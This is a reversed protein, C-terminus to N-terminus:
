GQTQPDSTGGCGQKRERPAPHNKVWKKQSTSLFRKGSHLFFKPCWPGGPPGSPSAAACQAAGPLFPGPSPLLQLLLSGRRPSPAPTPEPELHARGPSPTTTGRSCLPRLGWFPSKRSFLAPLLLQHSFTFYDMGTLHGRHSRQRSSIGSRSSKVWKQQVEGCDKSMDMNSLMGTKVWWKVLDQNSLYLYM